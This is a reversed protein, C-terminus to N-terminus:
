TIIKATAILIHSRRQCTFRRRLHTIKLNIRFSNISFLNRTTLYLHHHPSRGHDQKRRSAEVSIFKNDLFNLFESMIPFDCLNQISKMYDKHTDADLKQSLLQIILPDWASIDVGLNKIANLYENITDHIKKIHYATLLQMTLLSKM